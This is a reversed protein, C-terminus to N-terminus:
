PEALEVDRVLEEEAEGDAVVPARVILSLLISDPDPGSGAKFVLPLSVSDRVSDNPLYAFATVSYRGEADSRREDSSYDSAPGLHVEIGQLPNGSSDTVVGVVRASHTNQFEGTSDDSCGAAVLMAASVGLVELVPLFALRTM